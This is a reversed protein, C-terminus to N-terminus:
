VKYKVKLDEVIEKIIDDEKVFLYEDTYGDEKLEDRMKAKLEKPIIIKTLNSSHEEQEELPTFIKNYPQICFRGNQITKRREAIKSLYGDSLNGSSNLFITTNFKYPDLNLHEFKSQESTLKSSQLNYIWFQGDYKDDLINSVTFFLAVEWKTTWDMFRTPVRYHQAQQLLLWDTHFKSNLFGEQILKSLGNNALELNFDKVLEKEVQEAQIPYQLKRTINPVLKWDNRGQGRYWESSWPEITQWKYNRVEQVIEFLDDKSTVVKKLFPYM